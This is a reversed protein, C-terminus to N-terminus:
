VKVHELKMSTLFRSNKEKRREAIKEKEAKEVEKRKEDREINQEKIQKDRANRRSEYWNDRYVTLNDKEKQLKAILDDIEDTLKQKEDKEKQEATEVQKKVEEHIKIVEKEKEAIESLQLKLDEIEDKWRTIIEEKKKSEREEQYIEDQVSQSEHYRKQYPAFNVRMAKIRKIDKVVTKEDSISLSETELRKELRKIEEALKKRTKLFSIKIEEM